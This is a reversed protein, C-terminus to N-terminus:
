SRSLSSPTRVPGSDADVFAVIDGRATRAGVNRAAAIRRREVSAVTCGRDAAIEATGDTSCNDAVVVEIADQDGSYHARAEGVTDLLAPLFDEENFAPIVLSVHPLHVPDM